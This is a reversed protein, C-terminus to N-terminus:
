KGAEGTILVICSRPGVMYQDGEVRPETGPEMLDEGPSLTTDIARYWARGEVLPPLPFAQTDGDSNFVIFLRYDKEDRDASEVENGDVQFGLCRLEPDEWNVQGEGPGVWHIDPIGDGACLDWDLWSIGNDQAYVNNNGMQTRMFGDGATIMPTGISLL